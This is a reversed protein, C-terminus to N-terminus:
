KVYRKIIYIENQGGSGFVPFKKLTSNKTVKAWDASYLYNKVEGDEGVKEARLTERPFHTISAIQNGKYTVQFSGEGLLKLIDFIYEIDRNSVSGEKPTVTFDIKWGKTHDSNPSNTQHFSDNAATLRFKFNNGGFGGETVDELEEFLAITADATLKTIDGGNRHEIGKIQFDAIGYSAGLLINANPTKTGEPLEFLSGAVGAIGGMFGNLDLIATRM